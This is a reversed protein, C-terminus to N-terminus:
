EMPPLVAQAALSISVTLAGLVLLPPLTKHM